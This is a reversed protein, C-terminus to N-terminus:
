KGKERRLRLELAALVNWARHAEHLLGSDIDFDEHRGKLLHRWDADKYRTEGDPVSQWGGRSYKKAGHTGVEAVALLALSFDALVGALVKGADLKAGPAHADTGLPDREGQIHAPLPVESPTGFGVVGVPLWNDNKVCESCPKENAEKGEYCCNSCDREAM